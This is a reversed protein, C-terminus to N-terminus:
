HIEHQTEPPRHAFHSSVNNPLIQTSPPMMTDYVVHTTLRVPLLLTSKLGASSIPVSPNAAATNTVRVVVCALAFLTNM